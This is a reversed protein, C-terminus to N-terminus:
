KQLCSGGSGDVWGDRLSALADLVRAAGGRFSPFLPARPRARLDSKNINTLLIAKDPRLDNPM